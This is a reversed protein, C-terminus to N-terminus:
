CGQKNSPAWFTSAKAPPILRPMTSVCVINQIAAEASTAPRNRNVEQLINDCFYEATLRQGKSLLRVPPSGFLSWFITLTRKPANIM